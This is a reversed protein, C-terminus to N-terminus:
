HAPDPFIREMHQGMKTFVYFDCWAAEKVALQLQIQSYYSHNKKLSLQGDQRTLYAPPTSRPDSHAISLPCKIELIGHSPTCCPCHVLGDPSAGIFVKDKKVILGTQEVTLDTHGLGHMYSLYSERAVPENQIGYKIAPLNEPVTKRGMITDVLADSFDTEGKALRKARVLVSRVISATIRGLRQEKWVTNLAQSSTAKALVAVQEESFTPLTASAQLMRPVPPPVAATCRVQVEAEVNVDDDPEFAKKNTSMAYQM